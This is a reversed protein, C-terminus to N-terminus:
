QQTLTWPCLVMGAIQYLWLVLCMQGYFQCIQDNPREQSVRIDIDSDIDKSLQLVKIALDVNSDRALDIALDIHSDM